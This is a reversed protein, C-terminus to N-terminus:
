QSIQSRGRRITRIPLFRVPVSDKCNGLIPLLEVLHDIVFDAGGKRLTEQDAGNTKGVTLLGVRRGIRIDYMGDGVLLSTERFEDIDLGLIGRIISFHGEGKMMKPVREDSGLIVSFYKSLGLRKLRSEVVAHLSGSIVVLRYPARVLIKLTAETDQFPEVKMSGAIEWFANELNATSTMDDSLRGAATLVHRFQNKLPEGATKSYEAKSKSVPIQHQKKLVTAFAQAHSGMTDLLTGDLDFIITGLGPDSSEYLRYKQSLKQTGQMDHM